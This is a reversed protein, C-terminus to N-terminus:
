TSTVVRVSAGDFFNLKDTASNYWIQGEVASTGTTEFLGVYNNFTAIGSASLTNDMTVAGSLALTGTTVVDLISGTSAHIYSGTTGFQLKETSQMEITATVDLEDQASDWKLHHNADNGFITIDPSKDGVTSGFNIDTEEAAPIIQLVSGTTCAIAFDDSDGFHLETDDQLELHVDEFTVINGTSSFTVYKSAASGYWTIDWSKNGATSGVVIDTHDTLPLIAFVGGTTWAMDVDPADGLYLHDGDMLNLNVAEFVVENSTVDFLVYNTSADGYWTINWALTGSGFHMDTDNTVPLIEIQTDALDYHISMDKSDGIYLIDDDMLHLDIGELTLEKDSCDFEIYNNVSDGYITIDFNESGDGIKWPRNNASTLMLFDTDDWSFYVDKPTDGFGLIDNDGLYLDVDDLTLTAASAGFEITQTATGGYITIDWSKTGGSSGFIMNDLDTGPLIYFDNSGDFYMDVDNSNGLYLHDSDELSLNVGNFTVDNGTSSFVVTKAAADGYWTIDVSKTGATSGLEIDSGDADPIINLSDADWVFKMDSGDGFYLGVDDGYVGTPTTSIVLTGDADTYIEQPHEDNPDYLILKNGSMIKIDCDIGDDFADSIERSLPQMIDRDLASLDKKAM